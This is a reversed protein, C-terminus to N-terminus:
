FAFTRYLRLGDLFNGYADHATESGVELSFVNAGRAEPVGEWIAIQPGV